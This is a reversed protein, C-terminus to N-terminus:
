TLVRLALAALGATRDFKFAGMMRVFREFLHSRRRMRPYGGHETM